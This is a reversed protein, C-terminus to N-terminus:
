NTGRTERQIEQLKKRIKNSTYRYQWFIEKLDFDSEGFKKCTRLIDMNAFELLKILNDLESQTLKATYVKEPATKKTSRTFHRPLRYM